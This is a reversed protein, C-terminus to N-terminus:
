SQIEYSKLIITRTNEAFQIEVQLYSEELIPEILQPWEIICRSGSYLYEEIGMDYAENLTNLRYLDFHYIPEGKITVYENVISYTPSTVADEVNLYAGLLKSFTTKGAGMEGILFWIAYSQGLSFVKPILTQLEEVSTFSEELIITSKFSSM